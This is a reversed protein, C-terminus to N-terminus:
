RMGKKTLSQQFKTTDGTSLLANEKNFAARREREIKRALREKDKQIETPVPLPPAFQRKSM